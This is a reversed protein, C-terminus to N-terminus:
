AALRKLLAESRAIRSSVTGMPIGLMTAIESTKYGEGRLWLTDAYEKPLRQLMEVREWSQDQDDQIPEHWLYQKHHGTDDLPKTSWRKESRHRDVLLNKVIHFLLGYPSHIARQSLCRDLRIIAEQAIEDSTYENKGRSRCYQFASQRLESLRQNWERPRLKKADLAPIKDSLDGTLSTRSPIGHPDSNVYGDPYPLQKKDLSKRDDGLPCSRSAEERAVAGPHQTQQRMRCM